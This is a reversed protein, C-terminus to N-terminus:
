PLLVTSRTVDCCVRGWRLDASLMVPLSTASENPATGSLAPNPVIRAVPLNHSCATGVVARMTQGGVIDLCLELIYGERGKKGRVVETRERM